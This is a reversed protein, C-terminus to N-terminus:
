RASPTKPLSATFEQIARLFQQRGEPTDFTANHGGLIERLMKPENAAAFNKEAHAFRILDDTRSHLVLVPCRISPLKAQTDYQIRAL